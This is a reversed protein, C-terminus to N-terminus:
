RARKARQAEDIRDRWRAVKFIKVPGARGRGPPSKLSEKGPWRVACCLGREVSPHAVVPTLFGAALPSLRATFLKFFLLGRSPQHRQNLRFM